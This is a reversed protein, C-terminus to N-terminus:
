IFLRSLSCLGTVSQIQCPLCSRLTLVAWVSTVCPPSVKGTGLHLALLQALCCCPQGDAPCFAECMSLSFGFHSPKAIYLGVPLPVFFGAFFM